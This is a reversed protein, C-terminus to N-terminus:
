SRAPPGELVKVSSEHDGELILETRWGAADLIAAIAALMADMAAGGVVIARDQVDTAARVAALLDASVWWSVYAAPSSDALLDISVFAGPPYGDALDADNGAVTVPLGAARLEAAVRAALRERAAMEDPGVREIRM